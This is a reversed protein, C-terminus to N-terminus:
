RVLPGYHMISEIDYPEYTRMRGYKNFYMRANHVANDRYVVINDDRDPRSHEHYLGATHAL